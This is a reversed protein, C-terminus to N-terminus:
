KYGHLKTKKGRHYQYVTRTEVVPKERGMIRKTRETRIQPNTRPEITVVAGNEVVWIWDGRKIRRVGALIANYIPTPVVKYAIHGRTLGYRSALIDLIKADTLAKGSSIIEDKIETLDYGDVRELFRVMAHETAM